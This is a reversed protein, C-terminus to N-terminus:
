VRGECDIFHYTWLHIQNDDSNKHELFDALEQPIVFTVPSKNEEVRDAKSLSTM